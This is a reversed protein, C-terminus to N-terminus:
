QGELGLSNQGAGSDIGNKVGELDGGLPRGVHRAEVVQHMLLLCGPGLVPMENEVRLDDLLVPSSQVVIQLQAEVLLLHVPDPRLELFKLIGGAHNGVPLVLRLVAVPREPAVLEGHQM